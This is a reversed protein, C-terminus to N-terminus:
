TIMYKWEVLRSRFDNDFLSLHNNGSAFCQAWNQPARFVVYLGSKRAPRSNTLVSLAVNTAGDASVEYTLRTNVADVFYDAEPQLVPDRSIPSAQLCLKPFSLPFTESNSLTHRFMKGLRIVAEPYTFTTKSVRFFHCCLRVSTEM